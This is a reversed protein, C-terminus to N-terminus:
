LVETKFPAVDLRALPAPPPQAEPPTALVLPRACAAQTLLAVLACLTWAM